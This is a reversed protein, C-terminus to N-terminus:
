YRTYRRPLNKAEEILDLLEEEYNIHILRGRFKFTDAVQGNSVRINILAERTYYDINRWYTMMRGAYDLEFGFKRYTEINGVFPTRNMLTDIDLVSCM